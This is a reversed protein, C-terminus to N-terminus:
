GCKEATKINKKGREEGFYKIYLHAGCTQLM